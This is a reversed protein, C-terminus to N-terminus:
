FERVKGSNQTFKELEELIRLLIRWSKWYTWFWGVKGQSSFEGTKGSKGISTPVMSKADNFGTKLVLFDEKIVVRQWWCIVITFLFHHWFIVENLHSLDNQHCYICGCVASPWLGPLPADVQTKFGMPLTLGLGVFLSCFNFLFTKNAYHAMTRMKLNVFKGSKEVM